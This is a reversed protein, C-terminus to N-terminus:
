EEYNLVEAGSSTQRDPLAKVGNEKVVLKTLLLGADIWV